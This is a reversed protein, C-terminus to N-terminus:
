MQTVVKTRICAALDERQNTHIIHVFVHQSVSITFYKIRHVLQYPWM